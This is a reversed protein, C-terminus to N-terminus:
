QPPLVENRSERPRRPDKEVRLWQQHWARGQLPTGPVDPCDPESAIDPLAMLAGERAPLLRRPLYFGYSCELNGGNEVLQPLLQVVVSKAESPDCPHSSHSQQRKRNSWETNRSQM